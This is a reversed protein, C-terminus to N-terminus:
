DKLLKNLAAHLELATQLEGLLDMCNNEAAGFQMILENLDSTALASNTYSFITRAYNMALLIKDEMKGAQLKIDIGKNEDPIKNIELLEDQVYGLYLQLNEMELINQQVYFRAEEFSAADLAYQINSLITEGFQIAEETYKGADKVHRKLEKDQAQISVVILILFATLQIKM